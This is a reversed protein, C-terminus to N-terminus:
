VEEGQGGHEGARTAAEKVAPVHREWGATDMARSRLVAKTLWGLREANPKELYTGLAKAPGSGPRGIEALVDEVRLTRDGETENRGADASRAGGAADERRPGSSKADTGPPRNQGGRQYLRIIDLYRTM